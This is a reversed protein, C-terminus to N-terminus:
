RFMALFAVPDVIRIGQYSKLNKLHKDGSIIFDAEGQLACELFKDDSPDNSIVKLAAEPNVLKGYRMLRSILRDIQDNGSLGHIKKIHPYSLVKGYEELIDLSVVFKIKGAQELDLIKAPAGTSSLIASVLVNTDIVVLKM